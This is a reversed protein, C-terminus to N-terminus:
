ALHIPFSKKLHGSIDHGYEGHGDAVGFLHLAPCSLLNPVTVYADQNYRSPEKSNYGTISAFAFKRVVNKDEEVGSYKLLDRVSGRPREKSWSSNESSRPSELVARKNTASVV